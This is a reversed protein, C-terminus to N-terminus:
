NGQRLLTQPNVLLVMNETLKQPPLNLPFNAPMRRTVLGAYVGGWGGTDTLSINDDKRAALETFFPRDLTVPTLLLAGINQEVIIQSFDRLREPKAWVRLQGYWATGAPVDSAVGTGPLFRTQMDKRLEIFLNPFYPPYHFHIKRPELCDRSLPLGQLLLLAAAVWRWHSALRPQSDVLVLLFGSGFVIILPALYHAPLRPSEGSNLFPQGALLVLLVVAFVWRVRNMPGHRFQYALGAIFFATFLMGGGSWIRSQLNQELGTLGKNGLKNLDFGPPETAALQRQTAPEATPDGSKLALNQWALGLPHGSVLLNRGLWPTVLLAFAAAFVGLVPWRARGPLRWALYGILVVAVLGGSYETLFLLAALGGLAAVRWGLARSWAASQTLRVEIGALGNFVALIVVLFVTLGSLSVVQEWLSVSLVTGLAALWAARRDYLRVALRWVLWVAVWMLVANLGLVVYDPAWGEPPVPRHAWAADPLLTFTAALVIAYLPAHHLDPYPKGEDFKQGRAALVAYTQPYNVPTTFGEGRALQRGLVAQQMALEDPIGHFQKWTYLTTLLLGALVLGARAVWRAGRGQELWHILEQASKM